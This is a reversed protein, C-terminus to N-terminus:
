LNGSKMWVWFRSGFVLRRLLVAMHSKQDSDGSLRCWTVIRKESRPRGACNDAAHVAVAAVGVAQDVRLVLAEPHLEMELRHLADLRRVVSSDSAMMALIAFAMLAVQEVGDFSPSKGFHRIEHNLDHGFLLRLLGRVVREVQGLDPRVGLKRQDFDAYHFQVAVRLIVKGFDLLGRERRGVHDGSDAVAGSLISWNRM